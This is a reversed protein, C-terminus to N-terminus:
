HNFQSSLFERARMFAWHLALKLQSSKKPVWNKLIPKQKKRSRQPMGTPSGPGFRVKLYDKRTIVHNVGAQIAQHLRPGDIYKIQM